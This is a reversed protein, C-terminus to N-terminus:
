RERQMLRSVIYFPLAVLLAGGIFNGLTTTALNRLMGHDGFDWTIPTAPAADADALATM